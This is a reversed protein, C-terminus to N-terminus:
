HVHGTPIVTSQSALRVQYGGITVVREAEIIGELIQTYGRDTIGTKLIRKAFSEGEVHVYTVPTGNDDFIASEPLSLVEIPNGIKVSVEAFMGIKFKNEPNNLSFIVPVTRSEKNVSSGISILKGNLRAIDFEEDYGEVKFSANRVTQLMSAHALPVHVKLLVRNPNTITFLKGGAQVNQGIHFHIEEIIGTIPAILNFHVIASNDEDAINFGTQQAVVEFGAKKAEFNLQAELLRKEPIAQKSFLREVREYEAKALLYENRVNILSNEINAPPSIVAIIEGRKVGTGISPLRSNHEIFVIGNVPATVEAYRTPEYMIEGIARVSALLEHKGAPESRFDIKWQQEKLFSILEETSETQYLHVESTNAFVSVDKVLIVDEVQPGELRLEMEYNGAEKFTVLSRFIGPYSPSESVVSFEDGNATKFVSTLVGSTVPKFDKLDTLHIAFAAEEGVVLTPYEMFLETNETWLTVSTGEDEQEEVPAGSDISQCNILFAFAAMLIFFLRIQLM